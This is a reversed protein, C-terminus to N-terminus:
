YDGMFIRIPISCFGILIFGMFYLALLPVGMYSLNMCLTVFSTTAIGIYIISRITSNLKQILQFCLTIGATGVMLFGLVFFTLSIKIILLM